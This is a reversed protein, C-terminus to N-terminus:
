SDLSVDTSPVTTSNDFVDTSIMRKMHLATPPRKGKPKIDLKAKLINNDVSKVEGIEDLNM